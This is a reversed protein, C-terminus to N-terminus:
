NVTVTAKRWTDWILQKAKQVTEEDPIMVYNKEPFTFSSATGDSGNVSYSVINWSGGGSVQSRILSSILEYPVTTEFSGEVATLVENYRSLIETSMAKKMIAKILEMQNKGRQRDGEAFSHRNRAFALAQYGNVHNTGKVFSCDGATFNYASYVDVGGLADVIDMFGYFDVRFVYDIKMNYLMELTQRSVDVGYLGAHTLKDKQEGSVPTQVFYDRPTNLLLINRTKPNVVAVINVDSLSRAVMGRRDDIGSIYIAFANGDSVFSEEEEPLTEEPAVTEKPVKTEEPAKTEIAKEMKYVALERIRATIDKLSDVSEALSLYSRNSIAASIEGTLLSKLLLLPGDYIVTEPEKGFEKKLAALVEDTQERDAAELIGFRYDATDAVTKAPDETRVYVGMEITEVIDPTTIRSIAGNVRAMLVGGFILGGAIGVSFIGGLICRFIKRSNSGLLMFLIVLLGLFVGILVTFTTPLMNLKLLYYYFFGGAILLLLGYFIGPVRSGRKQKEEELIAATETLQIQEPEQGNYYDM